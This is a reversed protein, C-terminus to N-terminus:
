NYCLLNNMLNIKFKSTSVSLCNRINIKDEINYTIDNSDIKKEIITQKNIISRLKYNANNENMEPCQCKAVNVILTENVILSLALFVEVTM